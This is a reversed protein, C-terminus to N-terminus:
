LKSMNISWVILMNEHTGFDHIKLSIPKYNKIAYTNCLPPTDATQTNQLPTPCVKDGVGLDAWTNWVWSIPFM